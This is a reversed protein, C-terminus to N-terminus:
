INGDRDASAGTNQQQNLIANGHQSLAQQLTHAVLQSFEENKEYQQMQGISSSSVVSASKNAGNVIGIARRLSQRARESAEIKTQYADVAKQLLNRRGAIKSANLWALKWGLENCGNEYEWRGSADNPDAQENMAQPYLCNARRFDEGILDLSVTDVDVLIRVKQSNGDKDMYAINLYRPNIPNQSSHQTVSETSSSHSRRRTPVTGSSIMKDQRIVRRSRSETARNRYSDVARQILGRKGCLLDPNKWCLKWAVENVSTEYDWRNGIYDERPVLARPYVCNDTKFDEPIEDLHLDELDARICYETHGKTSYTFHLWEIGNRFESQPASAPLNMHAAATRRKGGKISGDAGSLEDDNELDGSGEEEMYYLQGDEGLYQRKRGSSSSPKAVRM